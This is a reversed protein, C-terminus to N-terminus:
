VRQNYFELHYNKGKLSPMKGEVFSCLEDFDYSEIFSGDELMIPFGPGDYKVQGKWEDGIMVDLYLM